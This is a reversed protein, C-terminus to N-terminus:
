SIKPTSYRRGEGIKGRGESTKGGGESTKDDYQQIVRRSIINDTNIIDSM